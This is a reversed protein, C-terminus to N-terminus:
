EAEKLTDKYGRFFYDREESTVDKATEPFGMGGNALQQMAADVGQGYMPHQDHQRFQAM